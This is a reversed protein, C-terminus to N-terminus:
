GGEGDGVPAAAPGLRAALAADLREPDFGRVVERGDIVFAPFRRIRRRLAHYVGVLSAADVVSIAVRGGYRQIASRAWDAIIAYEAALEPPLLGARRQEARIHRGLGAEHWVVECHLCHFFETPAYALIQVSVPRAPQGAM